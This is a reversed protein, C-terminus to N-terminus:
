PPAREREGWINLGGAKARLGYNKYLVHRESWSGLVASCTITGGDKTHLRLVIQPETRRQLARGALQVDLRWELDHYHPIDMAMHSLVSRIERCNEQYM